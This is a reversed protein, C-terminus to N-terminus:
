RKLSLSLGISLAADDRPLIRCVSRCLPKRRSIFAASLAVSLERSFTVFCSVVRSRKELALSRCLLRCLPTMEQSSAVFCFLLRLPPKKQEQSPSWAVLLALLLVAEDIEQSLGPKESCTSAVLPAAFSCGAFRRWIKLSLLWADPLAASFALPPMEQSFAVSLHDCRLLHLGVSGSRRELSPSLGVLLPLSL